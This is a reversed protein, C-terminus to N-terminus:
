RRSGSQTTSRLWGQGKRGNFSHGTSKSAEAADTALGDSMQNARGTLLMTKGGGDAMQNARGTLLMTKGRGGHGTPLKRENSGSKELKADAKTPGSLLFMPHMTSVVSRVTAGAGALNMVRWPISGVGLRTCLEQCAHCCNRELIDYSKGSWEKRMQEVLRFVEADTLRTTGMHVSERFTHSECAKPQCNFIGTGGKTYQFSWERGYVEVGCHFVGTGFKGLLQNLTSTRDGTGLDYVQLTVPAPKRIDASALPRSSRMCSSHSGMTRVKRDFINSPM